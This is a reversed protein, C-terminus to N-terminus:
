RDRLVGDQDAPDCRGQVRQLRPINPFGVLGAVSATNVIAGKNQRLMMPIEYRMRLWTGKLNSTLVRDWNNFTGIVLISVTAEHEPL